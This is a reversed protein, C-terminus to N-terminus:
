RQRPIHLIISQEYVPVEAKYKTVGIVARLMGEAETLHIHLLYMAQEAQAPEFSGNLFFVQKSGFRVSYGLEQLIQEAEETTKASSVAECLTSVLNVSETREEAQQNLQHARALLNLCVAACLSFLLVTIMTEMLLLFSSAKKM